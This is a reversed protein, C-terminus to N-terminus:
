LRVFHMYFSIHFLSVLSIYSKQFSLSFISHCNLSDVPLQEFGFTIRFQGM